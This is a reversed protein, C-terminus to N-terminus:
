SVYAIVEYNGSPMKFYSLALVANSIIRYQGSSNPYKTGPWAEKGAGVLSTDNFNKWGLNFYVMETKKTGGMLFGSWYTADEQLPVVGHKELIKFIGKLPIDKFYTPELLKNIEKNMKQRVNGKLKKKDMLDQPMHSMLSRVVAAESLKKGGARDIVDQRAKKAGSFKKILHDTPQGQIVARLYARYHFNGENKDKKYRKISQDLLEQAAKKFSVAEFMKAQPSTGGKVIEANWKKAFKKAFADAEKETMKGKLQQGGFRPEKMGSHMVFWKGQRDKLVHLFEKNAEILYKKFRM